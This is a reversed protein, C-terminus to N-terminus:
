RDPTLMASLHEILQATPCPKQIFLGASFEPKLQEPTYGSLVVFPTKHAALAAAAPGASAGALNADLVAADCAVKEILGLAKEVRGAVGVVEFGAEVLATRLNEAILPEDEFILVSARQPIAIPAANM